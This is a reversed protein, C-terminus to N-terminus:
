NADIEGVTEIKFRPTERTRKVRLMEHLALLEQSIGYLDNHIDIIKQTYDAIHNHVQKLLEEPDKPYSFIM